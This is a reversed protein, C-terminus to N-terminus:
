RCARRPRASRPATCSGLDVISMHIEPDQVPQLAAGIKQFTVEPILTTAM